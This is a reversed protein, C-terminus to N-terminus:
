ETLGTRVAVSIAQLRNRVHLKRFIRGLHTKVTSGSIYLAASIEKNTNGNVVLKLVEKERKSLTVNPQEQEPEQNVKTSQRAFEELLRAALPPCFIIEGASVGVIADILGRVSCDKTVYGRAGAKICSYIQAEDESHTLVIVRTSPLLSTILQTSNVCDCGPMETDFLIIDPSFERANDLSEQVSSCSCRCVVEINPEALLIRILGERFLERKDFIAVRIM